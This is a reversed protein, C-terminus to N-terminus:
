DEQNKHKKHRGVKDAKKAKKKDQHVRAVGGTTTIMNKLLEDRQKLKRVKITENTKAM